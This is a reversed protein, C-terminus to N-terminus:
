TKVLEPEVQGVQVKSSFAISTPPNDISECQKIMSCILGIILGKISTNKLM